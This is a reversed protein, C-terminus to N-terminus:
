GKRVRHAHARAKMRNGCTTMSCWKATGPRSHDLLFLNCEENACPRLRGPFQQVVASWALVAQVALRDDDPVQLQWQVGTSTITPALAAGEVVAALENAASTDQHGRMIAHLADRTQRLRRVEAESGSGGLGRTFQGAASGELEDAPQGKVTPASNLLRLLFEEDEM